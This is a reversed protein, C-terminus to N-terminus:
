LTLSCRPIIRIQFIWSAVHIVTAIKNPSLPLGSMAAFQNAAFLQAFLIGTMLTGFGPHLSIYYASYLASGILAGNVPLFKSLAWSGLIPTNTLWVQASRLILPLSITDCVYWLITPVFVVSQNDHSKKSFQKISKIPIINAM